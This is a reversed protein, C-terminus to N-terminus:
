WEVYESRATQNVLFGLAIMESICLSCARHPHVM